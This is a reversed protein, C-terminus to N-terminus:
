KISWRRNQLDFYWDAKRILNFGIVAQVGKDAGKNVTALDLVGVRINRFTRPGVAISKARFLKLKIPRGTGDFGTTLDKIFSFNDPNAKVYSQDVVTLEAATDWLARTQIHGLGVPLSFIGNRHVEVGDLLPRPAAGGLILSSRKVFEFLFPQRGILDIGITSELKESPTIRAFKVDQFNFTSLMVNRIQIQDTELPIGAASLFRVKGVAPYKAFEESDGVLSLASGTDLVCLQLVADLTCRVYPKGSGFQGHAIQLPAAQLAASALILLIAIRSM